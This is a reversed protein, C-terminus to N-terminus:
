CPPNRLFAVVQRCHWWALCLRSGGRQLPWRRWCPFSARQLARRDPGRAKLNVRENMRMRFARSVNWRQLACRWVGCHHVREDRDDAVHGDRMRNHAKGQTPASCFANPLCSPSGLRCTAPSTTGLWGTGSYNAAYSGPYPDWLLMYGSYLSKRHGKCWLLAFASTSLPEPLDHYM